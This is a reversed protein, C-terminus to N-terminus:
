SKKRGQLRVRAAGAAAGLVLGGLCGLAINLPKNPHVPRFSPTAQDIIELSFANASSGAAEISRHHELFVRTIENAIKAAEEPKEDFVSIELINANRV